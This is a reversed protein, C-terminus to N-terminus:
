YKAVQKGSGIGLASTIERAKALMMGSESAVAIFQFGQDIRKKASAADLVHIGSAVGHKKATARIHEVADVFQKEQSDFMPALGM